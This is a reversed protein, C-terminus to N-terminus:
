FQLQMARQYFVKLMSIKAHLFKALILKRTISCLNHFRQFNFCMFILAGLKILIQQM